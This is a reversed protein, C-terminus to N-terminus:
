DSRTVRTATWIPRSNCSDSLSRAVSSRPASKCSMPFIATGADMRSLCPRSVSASHTTIFRWGTTPQSIRPGIGASASVSGNAAYFGERGTARRAAWRTIALTAAVVVLFCATALM